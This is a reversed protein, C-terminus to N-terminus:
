EYKKRLKRSTELAKAVRKAFDQNEIIEMASSEIREAEDNSLDPLKIEEPQEDIDQHAAKEKSFGRGSLRIEKIVEAGIKENLKKLIMPALFHLEQAWISDRCTVFLVGGNVREPRTVSATKPGVVGAWLALATKERVAEQIGTRRLGSKILGGIDNFPSRM